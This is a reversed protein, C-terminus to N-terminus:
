MVTHSNFNDKNKRVNNHCLAMKIFKLMNNLPIFFMLDYGTVIEM